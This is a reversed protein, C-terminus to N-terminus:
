WPWTFLMGMAIGLVAGVFVEWKSHGIIESLRQSFEKNGKFLEDLMKNLMTSQYGVTRRVGAADYMVIFAVALSIAFFPSDFGYILGMTTALATMLAAHASPMGGPSYMLSLDLRKENVLLIIVKFLQAFFWAVLPVWIAKFANLSAAAQIFM